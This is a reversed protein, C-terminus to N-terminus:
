HGNPEWLDDETLWKRRPRQPLNKAAGYLDQLRVTPTKQALQLAEDIATRVADSKTKIGRVRMYSKLKKEFAASMHINLQSM